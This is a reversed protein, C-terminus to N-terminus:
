FTGKSRRYRSLRQRGFRSDATDDLSASDRAEDFKSQKTEARRYSFEQWPRDSAYHALVAAIAADGHRKRKKASVAGEGRENTRLTSLRAVGDVLKIASFDGQVDAHRPLSMGVGELTRKLPPMNIRYWDISFKIQEVRSMGFKQATKEALSAGNGGADMAGKVLRPLRKCIWFVVQEQQDFPINRMELIFPTQKFLTDEIQVPWFVSLDAVRGFDMGFATRLKPNLRELLPAVDRELFEMAAARRQEEPRAAFETPMEWRVVPIESRMCNSIVGPLIWSGSGESPICFLEEDAAEDYDAIVGARWEAEKEISWEEGKRQCIRQYLGGELADDFDIRVLGYPLRGARIDEIKRNFPNAQGDHTSIVVVMGGWITLAIAAKMLEELDDHFAAEDIIVYGAKGRLSRPSSPLAVVEFGSAFKIRFAKIQRTEKTKPDYDDFVWEGAEIAVEAVLKAWMGVVDIFERAMELNYGIYWVDMGGAKAEAGAVLAADLAFAWTLGTRRSKEIFTVSYQLRTRISQKQYPLLVDMVPLMALEPPLGYLSQRRLEAWEEETIARGVKFDDGDPLASM